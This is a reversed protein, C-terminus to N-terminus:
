LNKSSQEKYKLKHYFDKEEEQTTEQALIAARLSEIEESGSPTRNPNYDHVTACSFLFFCSIFLFRIQM